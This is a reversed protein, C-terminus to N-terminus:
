AHEFLLRRKLDSMLKVTILSVFKCCIQLTASHWNLILYYVNSGNKLKCIVDGVRGEVIDCVLM